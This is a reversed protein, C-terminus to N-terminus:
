HPRYTDDPSRIMKIGYAEILRCKSRSSWLMAPTGHTALSLGRDVTMLHM